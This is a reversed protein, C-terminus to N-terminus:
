AGAFPVIKISSRDIRYKWQLADYDFYVADNGGAIRQIMNWPTYDFYTTGGPGEIRTLNGHSDHTYYTWEDAPYAHSRLIENAADYEYYTDTGNFDQWTRNGVPDYDWQYAYIAAGSSDRWTESILRDIADYGYYISRGEERAIATIRGAADYEYAFYVLSSDDANRTDIKTLRGADDYSFYAYSGNAFVKKTLNSAADYTYDCQPTGVRSVRTM